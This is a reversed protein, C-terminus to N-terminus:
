SLQVTLQLVVASLEQQIIFGLLGESQGRAIKPLGCRLEMNVCGGEPTYRHWDYRRRSAGLLSFLLESLRDGQPWAQRSIGRWKVSGSNENDHECVGGSSLSELAMLM